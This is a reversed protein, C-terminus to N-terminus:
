KLADLYQERSLEVGEIEADMKKCFLKQTEADWQPTKAHHFSTPIWSEDAAKKSQFDFTRERNRRYAESDSKAFRVTVPRLEEEQKLEELDAEDLPARGDAKATRDSKDLYNLSPRLHLIGTLPTVHLENDNLIGVAYRGVDGVARTSTLVQRDMRGSPFTLESADKMLKGAQSGDVNLAIQESKSRDFNICDTNLAIDLEVRQQAPKVRSEVVTVSDYSMSAPRVPYQFLYLNKALTKALFVPIEHIVPDTEDDDASSPAGDSAAPAASEAAAAAQGNASDTSMEARQM